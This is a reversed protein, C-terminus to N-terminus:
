RAFLASAVCDLDPEQHVLITFLSRDDRDPAVAEDLYDAHEVVLSASCKYGGITQHHDVVGPRLDGGVDLFLRDAPMLQPATSGYGAFLFRISELPVLPRGESSGPGQQRWGVLDYAKALAKKFVRLFRAPGQKRRSYAKALAEAFAKMN